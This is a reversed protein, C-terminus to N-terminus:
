EPLWKRDKYDPKYTYGMQAQQKAYSHGTGINVALPKRTMIVPYGKKLRRNIYNSGDYMPNVEDFEGIDNFQERTMVLIDSGVRENVCYGDVMPLEHYKRNSVYAPTALYHPHKLVIEICEDLWNGSVLIDNCLFALINGQAIRAGINFSRGPSADAEREQYRDCYASLGDYFGNCVLIFETSANRYPQIAKICKEAIAARADDECYHIMVISTDM